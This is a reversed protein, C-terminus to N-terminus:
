VMCLDIGDHANGCGAGKPLMVIIEHLLPAYHVERNKEGGFGPDAEDRQDEQLDHEADVVKDEDRDCRLAEWRVLAMDSALEAERASKDHADQEEAECAPEHMHGHRKEGDIQAEIRVAEGDAVEHHEDAAAVKDILPDHLYAVHQAEGLHLGLMGFLVLCEVLDRQRLCDPRDHHHVDDEGDIRHDGGDAERLVQDDHDERDDDGDDEHHHEDVGNRLEDVRMGLHLDEREHEDCGDAHQEHQIGGADVGVDLHQIHMDLLEHHIEGHHECDDELENLHAIVRVELAIM